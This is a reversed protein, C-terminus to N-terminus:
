LEKSFLIEFNKQNLKNRFFAIMFIMKTKFLNRYFYMKKKKCDRLYKRSNAGRQSAGNHSVNILYYQYNFCQHYKIPNSAVIIMGGGDNNVHQHSDVFFFFGCVWM